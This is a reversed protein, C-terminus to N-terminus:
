IPVTGGGSKKCPASCVIPVNKSGAMQLLERVIRGDDVDDCTPVVSIRIRSETSQVLDISPFPFFRPPRGCVSRSGEGTFMWPPCMSITNVQVTFQVPNSVGSCNIPHTLASEIQEPSEPSQPGQSHSAKKSLTMVEAM